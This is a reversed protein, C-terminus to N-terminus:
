GGTVPPFFAVEDDAGIPTDFEVHDQNVAVRIAKLDGFAVQYTDGRAKLWDLLGAVTAVGDPLTVIEHSLGTKERVWSFYVLKM